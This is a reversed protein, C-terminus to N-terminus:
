QFSLEFNTNHLDVIRTLIMEQENRKRAEQIVYARALVDAPTKPQDLRWDQGVLKMITAETARRAVANANTTYYHVVYWM